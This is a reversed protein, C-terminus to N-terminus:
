LYRNITDVCEENLGIGTANFQWANGARVLEGFEVATFGSYQNTLSFRAHQQKTKVEELQIFANDVLGFHQGKARGEFIHAFLKIKVDGYELRSMIADISEDIGPGKGTRNDGNHRLGGEQTARYNPDYCVFKGMRTKGYQDLIIASIDIDWETGNAMPNPDWGGGFRVEEIVGDAKVLVLQDGKQLHLSPELPKEKPALTLPAPATPQAYAPAPAQPQPPLAGGLTLTRGQNNNTGGTQIGM